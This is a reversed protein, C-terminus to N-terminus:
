NVILQRTLSKQDPIDIKIIYIGKNFDKLDLIDKFPCTYTKNFLVKGQLSYIVLTSNENESLTFNITVKDSTPNPYVELKTESLTFPQEVENFNVSFTERDNTEETEPTSALRLNLTSTTTVQSGKLYGSRLYKTESGTGNFEIVAFYYTTGAALGATTISNQIGKYIVFMQDGLSGGSKYTNNATYEKGDQPLFYDNIPKTSAIVLRRDGNGNTWSKEISNFLINSFILNSANVTPRRAGSTFQSGKLYNSRLYKTESGTGNVEVVAIHYNTGSSLGTTNFNNGSGNFIVYMGAGLHSGSGFTANASYEKGDKPLFYDNIQNDACAIVLRRAGNGNVWSIDMTNNLVNNFSINSANITPRRAGTTIQAGKLCNNRLYKTEIGTGNVEVVAIYYNTGSSLGSTNFTNGTGNYIVYMQAGLHSGTGFTSNANYEKGDQPLYYDNISNDACAIVLRRTGNGSSWSIDMSTNLVNTFSLNTSNITPRRAGTTFESGTLYVTRLYKTEIGTGNVEIVAVHYNTGSSLGAANFTNGDGKYIVYMGAGLHSGSGFSNASYEKGDQPLYYPNIEIDACAIVLRRSGNGSTWSIDMNNNTINNFLLNSSNITPRPVGITQASGILPNQTYYNATVGNGNYEIVAFYYPTGSTLGTTTFESGTGNYVVYTQDGLHFGSGFNSNASHGRGDRPVYYPNLPNEAKAIVIRRSGNGNTWNLKMSNYSIESFNLNSAHVTPETTITTSFPNPNQPYLDVNYNSTIGSGNYEFIAFHYQTAPLLGSLVFSSGSGNYVIYQRKDGGVDIWGLYEGERFTSNATYEVGDKPSFYTDTPAGERVMVLRKEGNGKTFNVQISSVTRNSYNINSAKLNPETPGTTMVNPLPYNDLKYNSQIGSGNYEIITFYYRTGNFLGDITFNNGSGNYVVYMGDGLHQGVKFIPNALYTKADQPLYYPNIPKKEKAIVIRNAGNGNSWSMDISNNTINSFLINSTNITPEIPGTTWVQNQPYLKTLYNSQNGTGNVEIVTINYPTGNFLGTVTVNNDTGNYIVYQGGGLHSGSTFNTNASYGKGDIPLYYPNIALKECIIVLRRNGNGNTWSINVSNNTINNFSINSAQITPEIELSFASFSTSFLLFIFTIQFKSIYTQKM